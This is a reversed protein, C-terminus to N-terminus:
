QVSRNRLEEPGRLAPLLYPLHAVAALHPHLLDSPLDSKCPRGSSRADSAASPILLGLASGLALHQTARRLAARIKPGQRASISLGPKEHSIPFWCALCRRM